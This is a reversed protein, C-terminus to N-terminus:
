SAEHAERGMMYVLRYLMVSSLITMAEESLSYSFFPMLIGPLPLLGSVYLMNCLAKLVVMLTLGFALSASKEREM